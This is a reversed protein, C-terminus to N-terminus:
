KSKKRSRPRPSIMYPDENELDLLEEYERKFDESQKDWDKPYESDDYKREVSKTKEKVTYDKSKDDFKKYSISGVSM